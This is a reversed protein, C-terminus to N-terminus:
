VRHGHEAEWLWPFISEKGVLEWSIVFISPAHPFSPIDKGDM